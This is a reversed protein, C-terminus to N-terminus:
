AKLVSLAEEEDSVVKTDFRSAFSLPPNKLVHAIFRETLFVDCYPLAAASHHFDYFDTARFGRNRNWRVIAHLGSVIQATPLSSGSKDFRIVNRLANKFLILQEALLDTPPEPHSPSVIRFLSVLSDRVCPEYVDWFGALEAEYVKPYSSMESEYRASRDTMKQALENQEPRLDPPAPSDTLMEELTIQWLVDLFTKQAVLEEKPQLEKSSIRPTGIVHGVKLWVSPIPAGPVHGQTATLFLFDKVETRVRDPTNQIVVGLSLSDMLRASATRLRADRQRMLEFLISENIPCLLRGEAVGETLSRLLELHLPHSPQGLYGDRLFIWYRTDLYIRKRRVVSRSLEAMHHALLGEVSLNPDARHAELDPLLTRLRQNTIRPM